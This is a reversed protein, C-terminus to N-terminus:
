EGGESMVSLDIRRRINRAAAPAYSSSFFSVSYRRTRTSRFNCPLFPLPRALSRVVAILRTRGFVVDRSCHRPPHFKERTIRVHSIYPAVIPAHIENEAKRGKLKHIECIHVFYVRVRALLLRGLHPHLAIYRSM